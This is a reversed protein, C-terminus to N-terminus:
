TRDRLRLWHLEIGDATPYTHLVAGIDGSGLTVLDPYGCV